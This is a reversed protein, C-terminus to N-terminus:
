GAAQLGQLSTLFNDCKRSANSRRSRFLVDIMRRSGSLRMWVYDRCMSLSAHRAKIDLAVGGVVNAMETATLSDELIVEKSERSSELREMQYHLETPTIFCAEARCGTVQELSHLLSHEVRCVFGIVLRKAGSSYHVPVASFGKILTLPLDADVLQSVRDRGLVPYGWQIARASALQWEDVLQMRVLLEELEEGNSRSNAQASRLETETLYGKSLM